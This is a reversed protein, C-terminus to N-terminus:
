RCNLCWVFRDFDICGFDFDVALRLLCCMMRVLWCVFLWGRLVYGLVFLMFVLGFFRLFLLFVVYVVILDVPM